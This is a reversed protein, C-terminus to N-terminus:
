HIEPDSRFAELFQGSTVRLTFPPTTEAMAKSPTRRIEPLDGRGVHIALPAFAPVYEGRTSRDELESLLRTADDLRGARAYGLGLVGVFIPARSLTVARELPEIAEDNRGLGCVALGRLWLGLMYDPQLELAQQAAREAADYRGLTYATSSALGHSLPPLPDLDCAMKTDSGENHYLSNPGGTNTVYLDLNGDGDYDGWAAGLGRGPDAVPGVAASTWVACADGLGDGIKDDPTGCAADTGFLNL